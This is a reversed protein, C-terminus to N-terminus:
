NGGKLSAATSTTIQWPTFRPLWRPVHKRFNSYEPGFSKELTPEEYLLVFIHAALWCCLGYVGIRVDGFVMAQGLIIGLVAVYMPNRVYRYSGRVVLHQTPYIPAPTGIGELAFRAFCELLIAAGFAILLFGLARLAAFGFFPAHVRWRGIWWPVLDAVTGPVAFLFVMTGIAALVRAWKNSLKM